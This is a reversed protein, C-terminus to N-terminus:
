ELMGLTQAVEERAEGLVKEALADDLLGRAVKRWAPLEDRPPLAAPRHEDQILQAALILDTYDPQDTPDRQWEEAELVIGVMENGFGWKRLIMAGVQARLETIADRVAGPANALVPQRGAYHLVPLAGIDHLLGGLMAWDPTLGPSMRALVHSVSATIASHRWLQQMHQKLQPNGSHFLDRLAYTTVLNRTTELGLFMVAARASTVPTQIGYLPSNAAQILRATIVPDGQIIGAVRSADCDPDSAAERVRLAIDPLNPMELRDAMLDDFIAYLLRNAPRQDDPRLEELRYSRATVEQSLVELLTRDIRVFRVPEEATATARRPQQEALPQRAAPTGGVIIEAAHEPRELRVRGSMLYIVWRDSQGRVFLRRGRRATEVRTKAALEEFAEPRLSDILSLAALERRDVIPAENDM